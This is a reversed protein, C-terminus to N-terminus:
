DAKVQRKRYEVSKNLKRTIIEYTIAATQEKSDECVEWSEEM